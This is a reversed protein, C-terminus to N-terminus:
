WLLKIGFQVERANGATRTLRTAAPNPEGTPDTFIYSSAEASLSTGPLDFNPHNLVNFFEARLQVHPKESGSGLRLSRSLLLDLNRFGPGTVTNRGVDGFFGAQPLAFARPDYWQDVTGVLPNSSYGQNLNPRDAQASAGSM